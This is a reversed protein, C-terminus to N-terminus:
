RYVVTAQLWTNIDVVATYLEYFPYLNVLIPLDFGEESYVKFISRFHLTVTDFSAVHFKEHKIVIYIHRHFINHTNPQNIQTDQSKLRYILFFYNYSSLECRFNGARLSVLRYSPYCSMSYCLSASVRKWSNCFNIENIFSLWIREILSYRKRSVSLFTTCSSGLFLLPMGEKLELSHPM